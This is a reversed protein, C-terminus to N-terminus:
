AHCLEAAVCLLGADLEDLGHVCQEVAAAERRAQPHRQPCLYRKFLVRVSLVQLNRVALDIGIRQEGLEQRPTAVLVQGVMVLAHQEASAVELALDHAEGPQTHGASRVGVAEDHLRPIGRAAERHERRHVLHPVRQAHVVVVSRARRAGVLTEDHGGHATAVAVPRLFGLEGGAADILELVEQCAGAVGAQQADIVHRAAGPRAAAVAGHL